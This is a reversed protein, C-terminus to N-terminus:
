SLYSEFSAISPDSLETSFMKKILIRHNINSDISFTKDRLYEM